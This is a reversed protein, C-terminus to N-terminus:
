CCRFLSLSSGTFKVFSMYQGREAGSRKVRSKLSKEEPPPSAPPLTIYAPSYGGYARGGYADVRDMCGEDLCIVVINDPM